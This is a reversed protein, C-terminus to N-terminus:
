GRAAGSPNIGSVSCPNLWHEWVTPLFSANFLPPSAGPLLVCIFTLYILLLLLPFELCWILNMSLCLRPIPLKTLAEPLYPPIVFTTRCPIQKLLEQATNLFSARSKGPLSHIQKSGYMVQFYYVLPSLSWCTGLKAKSKVAKTNSRVLFSPYTLHCEYLVPFNVAGGGSDATLVGPLNVIWCGKSTAQRGM